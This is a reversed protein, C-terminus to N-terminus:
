EGGGASPGRIPECAVGDIWLTGASAGPRVTVHLLVEKLDPNYRPSGPGDFDIRMHLRTWTEGAIERTSKYWHFPNKAYWGDLKIGVGMPASAKVWASLIWSTGPTYRIAGNNRIFVPVGRHAPAGRKRAEPAAIDIRLSKQGEIFLVKEDIGVTAAGKQKVTVRWCDLGDEFNGNVVHSAPAGGDAALAMHVLVVSAALKVQWRRPASTRGPPTPWTPTLQRM